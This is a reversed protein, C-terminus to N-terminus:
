CWMNCLSARTHESLYMRCFYFFLSSPTPYCFALLAYLATHSSQTGDGSSGAPPKILSSATSCTDRKNEVLDVPLFFLRSSHIAVLLLTIMRAGLGPLLLGACFLTLTAWSQGTSISKFASAFFSHFGACCCLSPPLSGGVM